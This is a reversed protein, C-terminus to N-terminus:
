QLAPAFTGLVLYRAGAFLACAAATLAIARVTPRWPECGALRLLRMSLDLYLVTNCAAFLAIMGGASRLVHTGLLVAGLNVAMATAYFGLMKREKGLVSFLTVLPESLLRFFYFVGMLATYTGALTWADGLVLAFVADGFFTIFTFPILGLMVLRAHLRGTISAVAQPGADRAEAAKQYFVGALSYGFLRLPMLLLGSGLTFQGAARTDGLTILGILPLQTAFLALWRSPFVFLPHSRHERLAAKMAAMDYPGGLLRIGHRKLGVLFAGVSATRVILEGAILGWTAGQTATGVALNVARLGVNAAPGIKANLSFAKARTAWTNFYQLLALLLVMLPIAYTWHGMVRLAPAIRFLAEHWMFLPTILLTMGVILAFTARALQQFGDEDRPLVLANPYALGVILSLNTAITIFLGYVGYPEPGYLRAVLPTLILQALVNVLADSFTFVANRAFSGRQRAAKVDAWFRGAIGRFRERMGEPNLPVTPLPM